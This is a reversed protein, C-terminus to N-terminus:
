NRSAADTMRGGPLPLWHVDIWRGDGTQRIWQRSRRAHFTEMVERVNAEIDPSPGTVEGTEHQWRVGAELTHYRDFVDEPVRNIVRFPRNAFLVEGKEGYLSVGDLMGDLVDRMLGHARETAEHAQLVEIERERLETIDRHLVLRKGDPLPIWRVDLYRGGRHVERRNSGTSFFLEMRRDLDAEIEAKTLTEPGHELQWRMAGRMHLSTDFVEPPFENLERSAPNMHLMTGDPAHLSVGDPLNDLIARLAQTAPKRSRACAPVKEFRERNLLEVQVVRALLIRTFGPHAM